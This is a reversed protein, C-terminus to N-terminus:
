VLGDTLDGDDFYRMIAVASDAESQGTRQIIFGIILPILYTSHCALCPLLSEFSHFLTYLSPVFASSSTPSATARHSPVLSCNLRQGASLRVKRRSPTNASRGGKMKAILFFSIYPVALDKSAKNSVRPM